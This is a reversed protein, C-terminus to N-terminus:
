ARPDDKIWHKAEQIKTIALSIERSRKVGDLSIQVRDLEGLIEWLKLKQDLQKKDKDAM